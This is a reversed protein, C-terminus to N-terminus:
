KVPAIEYPPLSNPSKARPTAAVTPAVGYQAMIVYEDPTLGLRVLDPDNNTGATKVIQNGRDRPSLMAGPNSEIKQPTNVTANAGPPNAFQVQSGQARPSLLTGDAKANSVAALALSVALLVLIKNTTKMIKTEQPDM